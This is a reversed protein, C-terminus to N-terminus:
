TPQVSFGSSSFNYPLAATLMLGTKRRFGHLSHRRNSQRSHRLLLSSRGENFATTAAGLNRGSNSVHSSGSGHGGRESRLIGQAQCGLHLVRRWLGTEGNSFLQRGASQVSRGNGVGNSRQEPEIGM